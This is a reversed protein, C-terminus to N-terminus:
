FRCNSHIDRSCMDGGCIEGSCIDKSCIDGSCFDAYIMFIFAEKNEPLTRWIMCKSQIDGSSIGGSYIDGSM